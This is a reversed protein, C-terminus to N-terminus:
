GCSLDGDLLYTHTFGTTNNQPYHSIWHIANDLKQVASALLKFDVGIICPTGVYDITTIIELSFNWWAQKREQPKSQGIMTKKVVKEIYMCANRMCGCWM